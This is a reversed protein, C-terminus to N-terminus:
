PLSRVETFSTATHCRGCDFGFEGDHIDNARHCSRCTGDIAKIKDLTMRHCDDCAVDAHAGDLVFETQTNHDFTWIEWAVPNHCADCSDNFHGNHPDDEAHCSACDPEIDTFVKTKHCGDCVPEQHAGLRPFRTLDHDFFVPEEWKVENHCNNCQTGLSGEHPEDDLHCSSCEETLEVEYIPEIHCDNCAVTAHSGLLEYETDRAHDFQSETWLVTNHCTDCQEGNHAEHEDDELHCAICASDNEDEFPNESHCDDCAAEAHKGILAFDTDRTHDFSSDHWDSPNHCNECENGSRGDHADDEAHCGFCTTPTVRFTKDEHCDNCAVEQHKGLLSYDTTSHDFEIEKWDTERHCDDCATSAFGEHIDDDRHCSLCDSPAERHKKEPEHCDACPVESHRGLLPRDTFDHDFTDEDLIVISFDRGEHDTHCSVCADVRANEFLGHFGAQRNIDLGVDEHCVICLDRQRAREFRAHCSACETEVEAHGEIVPGPMVLSEITQAAAIDICSHVIAIVFLTKCLWRIM